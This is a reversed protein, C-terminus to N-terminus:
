LGRFPRKLPATQWWPSTGSFLGNANIPRKGEKIPQKGVKIRRKRSQSLPGSREQIDRPFSDILLLLPILLKKFETQADYVHDHHTMQTCWTDRNKQSQSQSKRDCTFFRLSTKPGWFARGGWLSGQSKEQSSFDCATAIRKTIKQHFFHGWKPTAPSPSTQSLFDRHNAIAIKPARLIDHGHSPHVGLPDHLLVRRLLTRLLNKFM